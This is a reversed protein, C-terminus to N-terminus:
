PELKVILEHPTCDVALATRFTGVEGSGEIVKVSDDIELANGETRGYFHYESEEAVEDLIIKVKKGLLAENNELSIEEQIEMLASLRLRADAESVPTEKLELAPTNEEPSYVFGGLHEFRIEQVLNMLAEFDEHTEGPFGVLVTTRLTVGPIKERIKLLLDRLEKGSYNRKMLRLMKDSAHQVPMDIYKCLRDEKAILELLADDIFAPYWYLMRIWPVKTNQILAELLERLSGGNKKERGFFTLDQAVLTIEQVGSAELQKVEEVIDEVSRSVQRGRIGPIACFACKRNCGEAVKVYAHHLYDSLNFRSLNGCETSHGLGLTKVLSGLQYTGLWYDVEPIEKALEGAYRKSLCGCVVLTQKKQKQGAIQLITEISEEKADEIFGCTNVVLVDAKKQSNQFSLGASVLEGALYEADVQNKSCGLSIIFFSKKLSAM